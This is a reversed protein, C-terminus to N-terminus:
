SNRSGSGQLAQLRRELEAKEAALAQLDLDKQKGDGYRVRLARVLNSFGLQGFLKSAESIVERRTTPFESKKRSAMEAIYIGLGLLWHPAGQLLDANQAVWGDPAWRGLARVGFNLLETSAQAIVGGGLDVAVRHSKSTKDALAARFKSQKKEERVEVPTPATVQQFAAELAQGERDLGAQMQAQATQTAQLTANMKRLLATANEGDQTKTKKHKAM